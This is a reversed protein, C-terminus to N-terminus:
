RRKNDVMEGEVCVGKGLEACSVSPLSVPYLLDMRTHSRQRRQYSIILENVVQIEREKERKATRHHM